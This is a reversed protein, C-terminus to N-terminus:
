QVETMEGLDDVSYTKGQYEVQQSPAQSGAGISDARGAGTDLHAAIKNKYTEEVMKEFNDLKEIIGAETQMFGPEFLQAKVLEVESPRAVSNPDKIKATDIAINDIDQLLIQNETDSWDFVTGTGHSEIRDRLKQLSTMINGRRDQTEKLVESSKKSLAKGVGPVFLEDAIKKQKAAETSARAERQLERNEKTAEIGRERQAFGEKYRRDAKEIAARRQAANQAALRTAQGRKLRGVGSERLKEFFRDSYQGGAAAGQATGMKHLGSMIGLWMNRTALDDEASGDQDPIGREVPIEPVVPVQIDQEAPGQIDVVPVEAEPTIQPDGPYQQYEPIQGTPLSPSAPPQPRDGPFREYSLPNGGM